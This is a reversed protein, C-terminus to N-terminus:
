RDSKGARRAAAFDERMRTAIMGREAEAVAALIDITFKTTKPNDGCVFDAKRSVQKM